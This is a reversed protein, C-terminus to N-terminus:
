SFSWMQLLLPQLFDLCAGCLYLFNVRIFPCLFECEDSLRLCHELEQQAYRSSDQVQFLVELLDELLEKCTKM